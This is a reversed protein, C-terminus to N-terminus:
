ILSEAVVWVLYVGIILINLSGSVATAPRESQGVAQYVYRALPHVRYFFWILLFTGVFLFWFFSTVFTTLFPVLLDLWARVTYEIFNESIWCARRSEM